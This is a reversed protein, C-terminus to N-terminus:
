QTPAQGAPLPAPIQPQEGRTPIRATGFSRWKELPMAAIAM